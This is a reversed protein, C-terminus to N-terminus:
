PPPTRHQRELVVRRLVDADEASMGDVFHMFTAATDGTGALAESMMQATHEDRTSRPEYVYARGDLQRRLWGKRHLNDMVTMVTTYALRREAALAERMQRVSMPATAAWLRDMIAAELDGLRQMRM